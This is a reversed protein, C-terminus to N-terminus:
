CSIQNVSNKGLLLLLTLWPTPSSLKWTGLTKFDMKRRVQACYKLFHGLGRGNPVRTKVDNITWVISVKWTGLAVRPMKIGNPLTLYEEIKPPM